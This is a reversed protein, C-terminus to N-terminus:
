APHGPVQCLAPSVQQQTDTVTRDGRARFHPCTCYTFWLGRETLRLCQKPQQMESALLNITVQEKCFIAQLSRTLLSGPQAQVDACCRRGPGVHPRRRFAPQLRTTLRASSSLVSPLCAHCRPQYSHSCPALAKELRYRSSWTDLICTLKALHWSNTPSQLIAHWV